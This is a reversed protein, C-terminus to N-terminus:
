PAGVFARVYPVLLRRHVTERRCDLGVKEFLARVKRPSRAREGQPLWAAAREVLVVRGNDAVVRAMERLAGEQDSWTDFSCASLVLDFSADDFPLSEPSALAFTLRVDGEARAAAVAAPSADVGVFSEGYPVRAVMEHLLEGRGCGVELIRVPVPVAVLALDATSDVV